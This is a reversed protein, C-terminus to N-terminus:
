GCDGNEDQDACILEWQLDPEFTQTEVHCENEEITFELTLSGVEWCCPDETEQEVYVDVVFDGAEEEGIVYQGDQWTELFRGETGDVSYSVEADAIPNGNQDVLTLIASSHRHDM